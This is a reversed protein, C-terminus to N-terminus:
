VVGRARALMAAKVKRFEEKPLRAIQAKSMGEYMIPAAGTALPPAFPRLATAGAVQNAERVEALAADRIKQEREQLQKISADIEEANNGSVYDELGILNANRLAKERHADARALLIQAAADDAVSNIQTKLDANAQLVQAIQEAQEAHLLAFEKRLKDSDSLSDDNAIKQTATISEFKQKWEASQEEAAERATQETAIKDSLKSKEDSRVKALLDAIDEKSVGSFTPASPQTTNTNDQPPQPTNTADNPPTTNQTKPDADTQFDAM